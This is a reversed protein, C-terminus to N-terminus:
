KKRKMMRILKKEKREDTERGAKADKMELKSFEKKAEKKDMKKKM